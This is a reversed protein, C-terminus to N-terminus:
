PNLLSPHEGVVTHKKASDLFFYLRNFFNVESVGADVDLFLINLDPYLNKIRREVGKAIVQNAICGFPQLCLVNEVGEQMFGGIEGAILWSEGYQNNLNLINGARTALDRIRHLPRLYRFTQLKNEVLGLFSWIWKEGQAAFRSFLGPQKLNTQARVEENVLWSLFFELLVPVVVEVHQEILWDTVQFNCFSNYKAYIEGVIGVVPLPNSSMPICNFATSAEELTNLIDRPTLHLDGNELMKMYHNSLAKAQGKEIERAATAYYLRSISDSYVMSLAARAMYENMNLKFGPQEHLKGVSPSLSIIPVQEFGADILAKKLLSLYSSARCAGGTQTIAVAVEAPDYKGSQLAKIIDGIV